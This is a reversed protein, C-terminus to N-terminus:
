ICTYRLIIKSCRDVATNKSAIREYDEGGEGTNSKGHLRNMAIALTEHAIPEVIVEDKKIEAIKWGFTGLLFADGKRSEYVFEEDLEGLKVGGATKVAYLGKDPITGGASVALMRSYPDGEVRGHIRDYLM